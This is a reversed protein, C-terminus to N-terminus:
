GQRQVMFGKLAVLLPELQEPDVRHFMPGAPAIRVNPGQVCQGLCRIPEIAVETLGEEQLRRALREAILDGGRNGCALGSNRQNVCVLLSISQM